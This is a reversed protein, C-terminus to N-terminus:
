DWFSRAFPLWNMAAPQVTACTDPSSSCGSGQRGMLSCTSNTAVMAPLSLYRPFVIRGLTTPLGGFLLKNPRACMLGQLCDGIKLLPPASRSLSGTLQPPAM